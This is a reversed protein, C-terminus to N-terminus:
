RRRAERRLERALTKIEDSPEPPEDLLHALRRRSKEGRRYLERSGRAAYSMWSWDSPPPSAYWAHGWGTPPYSRTSKFQEDVLYCWFDTNLNVQHIQSEEFEATWSSDSPKWPDEELGEREPLVVIWHLRSKVASWDTTPNCYFKLLDCLLAYTTGKAVVDLFAIPRRRNMIQHPLLASHELYSAFHSLKKKFQQLPNRAYRELIVKRIAAVSDLGRVSLQLMQMRDYWTTRALAGSFVDFLNELSRGVVIFDFDGSRLANAGVRLLRDLQYDPLRQSVGPRLRKILKPNAMNWRFPKGEPRM